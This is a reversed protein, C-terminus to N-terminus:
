GAVVVVTRSCTARWPNFTVLGNQGHYRPGQPPFPRTLANLFAKLTVSPISAVVCMSFTAPIMCAFCRPTFSLVSATMVPICDCRCEGSVNSAKKCTVFHWGQRRVVTHCQWLHHGYRVGNWTDLLHGGCFLHQMACTIIVKNKVQTQYAILPMRSYMSLTKGGGTWTANCTLSKVNTSLNHMQLTLHTWLLQIMLSCSSQLHLLRVCLHLERHVRGSGWRM